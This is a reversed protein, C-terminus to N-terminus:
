SELAYYWDLIQRDYFRRSKEETSILLSIQWWSRQGGHIKSASFVKDFRKSRLLINLAKAGCRNRKPRSLKRMAANGVLGSLM